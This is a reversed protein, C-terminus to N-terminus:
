QVRELRKRLRNAVLMAINKYLQAQVLPQLTSVNMDNIKLMTAKGIAEATASRKKGSIAGMEGICEGDRVIDIKRGKRTVLVSGKIIIYFEQGMSNESFIIDGDNFVAPSCCKLLEEIAPKEFRDFFDNNDMLTQILKELQM